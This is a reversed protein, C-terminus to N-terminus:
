HFPLVFPSTRNEVLVRNMNVDITVVQNEMDYIFDDMQGDLPIFSPIQPQLFDSSLDINANGTAENEAVPYKIGLDVLRRGEAIFVEQRMLYLLELLDEETGAADIDGATVQTGSVLPVSIEGAQRDLVLGAVPEADPSFRVVVDDTLPYDDRNGGSRTERSDDLMVVPRNAIVDALMDKLTQQAGAINNQAIQAEAKIFYAEEGKFISIPKQDLTPNGISFYKPDLFDLRPLPAFEDNSSDFLFFQMTNSPGNVGDFVVSFNLEPAEQIVAEAENVAKSIDGQHYAIRALALRAALRFVPQSTLGVVQEFDQIALNYHEDATLVRGVNEVPLGVFYEGSYLDAVGKYFFLEALDDDTTRADAPAVEELGYEAMRRLRHIETQLRLVDIDATAIQPLDFVKSSLTRNNFYNDSTLETLEVIPIITIAMQRRMGEMWSAMAQPADLFKDNTVNPNEVETLECAPLVFLTILILFFINRM